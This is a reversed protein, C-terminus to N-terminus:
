VRAEARQSVAQIRDRMAQLVLQSVDLPTLRDTNIVLDYNHPDEVDQQFNTRVYRARAHDSSLLSNKAAIADCNKIKMMRQVRASMSAVLRVHFGGPLSRTILNSARGTLIVCGLDALHFIAESVKQELEWVPPHLGVLEGILAKIESIRDEPLYEALREPLNHKTLAHTILDGDFFIWSRGEIRMQENLLAVLQQGLATAGAAAERSITIFPRGAPRSGTGQIISPSHLRTKLIKIGHDLYPHTTNM